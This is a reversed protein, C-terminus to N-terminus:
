FPPKWNTDKRSSVQVIDGTRDNRIVYSGDKNVYATAPDNMKGGGPLNRTDRTSVTRHPNSITGEVQGKTWGRKGLQKEIKKGYSVIKGIGIAATGAGGLGM